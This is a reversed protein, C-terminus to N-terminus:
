RNTGAPTRNNKLQCIREPEKNQRTDLLGTCFGKARRQPASDSGAMGRNSYVQRAQPREKSNRFIEVVFSCTMQGWQPLVSTVLSSEALLKRTPPWPEEVAGAPRQAPRDPNEQAQGDLGHPEDRM